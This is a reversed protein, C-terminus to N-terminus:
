KSTKKALRSLKRAATNQKLVGRKAAKDLTKQALRLKEAVDKGGGEITKVAEKMAKKYNNKITLNLASRKKAKRLEKKASAKIPM